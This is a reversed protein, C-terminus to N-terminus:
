RATNQSLFVNVVVAIVYAFGFVAAWWALGWGWYSGAAAFVFLTLLIKEITAM